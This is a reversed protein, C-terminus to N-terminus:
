GQRLRKRRWECRTRKMLEYGKRWQMPFFHLANYRHYFRIYSYLRYTLRTRQNAHTGEFLWCGAFGSGDSSRTASPVRKVLCKFRGDHAYLGVYVCWYVFCRSLSHAHSTNEITILFALKTPNYSLVLRRTVVNVGTIALSINVSGVIRTGKSLNRNTCTYIYIHVFTCVSSRRLLLCVHVVFFFSRHKVARVSTRLSLDLSPPLFLFSSASLSPFPSVRVYFIARARQEQM